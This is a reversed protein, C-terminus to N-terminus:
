MVYLFENANLVARCFAALGHQAILRQPLPWNKRDAERGFALQFALEVQAATSAGAEKELRAAFFRAQDMMFVNNM